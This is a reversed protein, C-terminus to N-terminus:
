GDVIGGQWEGNANVFTLFIRDIPFAPTIEIEFQITNERPISQTIRFADEPLHGRLAGRRHLARFFQDLMLRPRPDDMDANFVLQDGLSQLQRRLYGLFRMIEASRFGDFRRRDDAEAYDQPPLAPVVLREDDLFLRGAGSSDVRTQLIGIGPEDRLALCEAMSVPPYPLGNSTLPHAGVSSWHGRLHAAEAQKGAIVGTPSHLDFGPGRLYPFLFQVHRLLHGSGGDRIESLRRLAPESVSPSGASGSYKLPLTLLCQIDPRQASIMPLINRLLTDIAMPEPMTVLESAARRERNNDDTGTGCPLFRPRPNEIRVRPVDPLQAPVQLRELDPFAVLGVTPIVLLTALGRLTTTDHFVTDATPFFGAQGEEAPVRVVWLTEGGNAFFDDVARPLWARDGALLSAYATAGTAADPFVDHFEAGSHFPLPLHFLGALPPAPHEESLLADVAPGYGARRMDDLTGGLARLRDLRARGPCHGLMAVELAADLRPAPRPTLAIRAGALWEM